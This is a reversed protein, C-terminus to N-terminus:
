PLPVKLIIKFLVYVLGTGAATSLILFPWNRYRLFLMVSACLAATAPLYGVVPLLRIYIVVMLPLTFARAYGRLGTEAAGTQGLFTQASTIVAGILMLVSVMRPFIGATKWAGAENWAFCALAAMALPLLQQWLGAKKM